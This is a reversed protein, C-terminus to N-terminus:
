AITKNFTVGWWYSNNGTGYNQGVTVTNVTARIFTDITTFGANPLMGPGSTGMMNWATTGATTNRTCLIGYKTGATLTVASPFTFKYLANATTPLGPGISVTSIISTVTNSGDLTVVDAQYTVAADATFRFYLATIECTEAPTFIGGRSGYAGSNAGAAFFTENLEFTGGGGGGSVVTGIPGTIEISDGSANTTLTVSTGTVTYEDTEYKLGNVSVIIDEETLSSYPITVVQPSGTGTAQVAFPPSPTPGSGGTIDVTVQGAGDDTVTVASGTFNLTDVDTAVTTGEQDVTLAAPIDVPVSTVETVHGQQDVTIQPINSADGYTDPTVASDAHSITRDVTLDGGGTLATGANITRAQPVADNAIQFTTLAQQLWALFAPTAKGERNVVPEIWNWPAYRNAM